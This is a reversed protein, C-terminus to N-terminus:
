LPYKRMACVANTPWESRPLLIGEIKLKDSMYDVCDRKRANFRFNKKTLLKSDLRICLNIIRSVKTSERCLNFIKFM